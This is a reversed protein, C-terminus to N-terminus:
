GRCPIMELTCNGIPSVSMVKALNRHTSTHGLNHLILRCLCHKGLTRGLRGSRVKTAVHGSSKYSTRTSSENSRLTHTRSCPTPIRDQTNGLCAVSTVMTHLFQARKVIPWFGEFRTEDVEVADDTARIARGGFRTPEAEIVCPASLSIVGGLRGGGTCRIDSIM